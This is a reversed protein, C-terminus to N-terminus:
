GLVHSFCSINMRKSSNFKENGVKFNEAGRVHRRCFHSRPALAHFSKRASYNGVADLKMHRAQGGDLKTMDWQIGSRHQKGLDGMKVIANNNRSMLQADHCGRAFFVGLEARRGHWWDAVPIGVRSWFAEGRRQLFTHEHKRHSHRHSHRAEQRPRNRNHTAKRRPFQPHAIRLYRPHVSSRPSCKFTM